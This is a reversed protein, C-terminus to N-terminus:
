GLAIRILLIGGSFGHPEALVFDSFPLNEMIKEIKSASCRTESLCIVAPNHSSILHLINERFSPRAIGRANWVLISIPNPNNTIMTREWLVHPPVHAARPMVKNLSPSFFSDTLQQLKLSCMLLCNEGDTSVASILLQHSNKDSVLHLLANTFGAINLTTCPSTLRLFDRFPSLILAPDVLFLLDKQVIEKQHSPMNILWKEWGDGLLHNFGRLDDINPLHTDRKETSPPSGKPVFMM